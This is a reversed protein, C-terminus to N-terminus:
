TTVDLIAAFSEPHRVACDVDSLVRLRVLNQEAKSYEDILIEQQSWFAVLLDAHNGFIVASCVGTSSGKDLDSPVNSTALVPYGLLSNAENLIFNGDTGSANKEITRMAAVVKNNTLFALNGQLANDIAVEKVLDVLKAYTVAGGDTGIAVSGIGSTGLIGTPEESGGGEILVDDIKSAIARAMDNLLVSEVDTASQQIMRRSVETFAAITKPSMSIQGIVPSSESITGTESVFAASLGTSMKPISIDGNGTGTLTTAQPLLVSQAILREIFSGGLVNTQILNSGNAPSSTVLDRKMFHPPLVMGGHKSRKSTEALVERELGANSWDGTVKANIARTLSFQREENESLGLYDDMPMNLPKSEIASLLRSRFTELNQGKEIADRALGIQNHREALGLMESTENQTLATMKREKIIQANKDANVSVLSAEYIEFRTVILEDDGRKETDLVRYGISVNRLIGNKISRYLRDGEDDDNLILDGVLQRGVFRPNTVVGVPLEEMNHQTLLPVPFRSLDISQPTISLVEVYDGRDVKTETALVAEFQRGNKRIDMNRTKRYTNQSM